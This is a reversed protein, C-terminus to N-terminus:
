QMQSAQSAALGTQQLNVQYQLKFPAGEEITWVVGGIAALAAIAKDLLAAFFEAEEVESRSLDVVEQVLSQIEQKARQVAEEDPGRDEPSASSVQEEIRSSM